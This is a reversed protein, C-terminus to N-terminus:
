LCVFSCFQLPRHASTPDLADLGVLFFNVNGGEVKVFTQKEEKFELVLCFVEEVKLVM